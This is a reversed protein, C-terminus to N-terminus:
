RNLQDAIEKKLVKFLYEFINQYKSQYDDFNLEPFQELFYKHLGSNIGGDRLDYMIGEIAKKIRKAENEELKGKNIYSVQMKTFTADLAKNVISDIESENGNSVSDTIVFNSANIQKIRMVLANLPIAPTKDSNSKIYEFIKSIANRNDIFLEIPLESIFGRDPLAGIKITNANEVIYITGIIFKKIYGNKNILYNVSDLIKSFFPDSQRLLESAYKETSKAVLRNLFFIAQEETEIKPTWTNFAKILQILEGNENREFLPAIADIALEQLTSDEAMLVRSLNKYRYKLYTCAYNHSLEILNNVESRSSKNECISHFIQLVSFTSKM